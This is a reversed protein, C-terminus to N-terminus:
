ENLEEQQEGYKEGEVFYFIAIKITSNSHKKLLSDSAFIM